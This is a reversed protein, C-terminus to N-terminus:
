RKAGRQEFTHETKINDCLVSTQLLLITKIDYKNSLALVLHFVGDRVLVKM